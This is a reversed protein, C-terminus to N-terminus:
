WWELYAADVDAEEAAAAWASRATSSSSITSSFRASDCEVEAIAVM